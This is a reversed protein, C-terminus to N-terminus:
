TNRGVIAIINLSLVGSQIDFMSSEAEYRDFEKNSWGSFMISNGNFWVKATIGVIKGDMDMIPLYAGDGEMQLFTGDPFEVGFQGSRVEGCKQNSIIHTLYQNLVSADPLFGLPDDFLEDMRQKKQEELERRWKKMRKEELVRQHKGEDWHNRKDYYKM